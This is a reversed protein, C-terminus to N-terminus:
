SKSSDTYMLAMHLRPHVPSFYAFLFSTACIILNAEGPDLQISTGLIIAVKMCPLIYHRHVKEPRRIKLCSLVVQIYEVSSRISMVRPRVM